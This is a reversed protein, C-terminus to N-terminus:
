RDSAFTVMRTADSRGARTALAGKRRAEVDIYYLHRSPAAKTYSLFDTIQSFRYLFGLLSEVSLM